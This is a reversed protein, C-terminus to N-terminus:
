RRWARPLKSLSQPFEVVLEKHCSCGSCSPGHGAAPSAQSRGAAPTWRDTRRTTPSGGAVPAPFPPRRAGKSRVRALRRSHPNKSPNEGRRSLAICPLFCPKREKKFRQVSSPSPTISAAAAAGARVVRLLQGVHHQHQHRETGSTM